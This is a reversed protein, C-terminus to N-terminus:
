LLIITMLGVVFCYIGFVYLRNEKVIGLLVRITLIGVVMATLAGLSFQLMDKAALGAEIKHLKLLCAGGVAPIALLFSFRFSTERSMGALMGTAITAGSRSIGPLIALGQSIGVIISSLIGPAENHGRDPIHSFLSAATLWAATVMLMAGVVKPMAFVHEIMDGCFYGILFTPISAVAIPVLFKRGKGFLDIIDWRFFILISVLTGLHLFIDFALQPEKIGFISHLIVLHGSSSIPFFEAVGQLAGSIVAQTITM